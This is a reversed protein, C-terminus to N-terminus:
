GVKFARHALSRPMVVWGDVNRSMAVAGTIVAPCALPLPSPPMVLDGRHAEAVPIETLRAAFFEAASAAGAVRLSRLASMASFWPPVDAALDQGTMAQVAALALTACDHEGWAFPTTQERAILASLREEWGKTRM